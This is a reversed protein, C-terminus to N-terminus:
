GIKAVVSVPVRLAHLMAVLAGRGPQRWEPKNVARSRLQVLRARGIRRALDADEHGVERHGGLKQYLRRPILLGQDAYPLAFLSSRWAVLAERRRAAPEFDDLAFRFAAARPRELTARSMFSEAENEWGTELATEPLLFLLWDARALAAGANWQSARSKAARAVHCGAADAITLTDDTSGGDAVVVEKVLGRVTAGILGDFCRPLASQANLVPIVVSIM